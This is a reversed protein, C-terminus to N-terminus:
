EIGVFTVKVPGSGGEGTVAQPAKGYGRDLLEKAASVRAAEPAKVNGMIDALTKLADACYSQALARIDATAKNKTGRTRGGTKKGQAM